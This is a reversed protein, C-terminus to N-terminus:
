LITLVEAPHYVIIKAYEYDLTHKVMHEGFLLLPSQYEDHLDRLAAVDLEDRLETVLRTFVDDIDDIPDSLRGRIRKKSSIFIDGDVPNHAHVDQGYLDSYREDYMCIKCNSGDFKEIIVLNDADFFENPVSEHYYNPIKPYVYDRM